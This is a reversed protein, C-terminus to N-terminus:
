NKLKLKYKINSYVSVAFNTYTKILNVISQPKKQDVENEHNKTKIPKYPTGQPTRVWTWPTLSRLEAV